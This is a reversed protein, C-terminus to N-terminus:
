FRERELRDITAKIAALLDDTKTAIGGAYRLDECRGLLEDVHAVLEPAVGRQQLHQITEARTLAGPPLNCRDAIYGSLAEAATSAASPAVAHLRRLATRRASRRRAFGIDDRLRQSHRQTLWSLAFLLPPAALGLAVPWGLRLSQSTLVEDMDSYNALIGGTVETLQRTSAPTGGAQVIQSTPVQEAGRVKLPIPQSRVTVFKEQQPDFYSFPIPPIQRVADSRARISQTFHKGGRDLSGGLPDDPVKFDRTLEEIKALPPPPLTELRGTGTITLSLTIPDGVAVDTPKALATIAYQGVAGRYDAPRGQTPVDKVMIPAVTAAAAVRRAQGVLEGFVNRGIHTPYKLVINIDGVDLKGPREPYLKTRFEFVFYAHESGQAPRTASRATVSQLVDRFVGWESIRDIQGLMDRDSLTAGTRADLYQKIWVELTLELEQGVYVSPRAGKVEVFLLDGSDSKSALITLPATNQVAGDVKVPIPPIEIRGAQKPTLAYTYTLTTSQSFRGNIITTQSSQSPAGQSVVTAGALQPFEPPDHQQADQVIIQLMVPVGVYTEQASAEIRVTGGYTAGAALALMAVAASLLPLSPSHSLALSVCKRFGRLERWREM